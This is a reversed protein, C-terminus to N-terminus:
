IKGVEESFSLISTSRSKQKETAPHEENQVVQQATFHWWSCHAQWTTSQSARKRMHILTGSILEQRRKSVPLEQPFM